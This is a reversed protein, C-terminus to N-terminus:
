LIQSYQPGHFSNQGLLGLVSELIYGKLEIVMEDADSSLEIRLCRKMQLIFLSITLGLHDGLNREM